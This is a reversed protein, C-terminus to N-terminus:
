RYDQVLPWLLKIALVFNLFTINWFLLPGGAGSIEAGLAKFTVKGDFYRYLACIVTAGAAAGPIGFTFPLHTFRVVSWRPNQFEQFLFFGYTGIAAICIFVALSILIREKMHQVRDEELDPPAGSKGSMRSKKAVSLNFDPDDFRPGNDAWFSVAGVASALHVLSALRRPNRLVWQLRLYVSLAFALTHPHRVRYRARELAAESRAMATEPFGLVALCLSLIALTAM